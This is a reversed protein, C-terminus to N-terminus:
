ATRIRRHKIAEISHSLEVDVAVADEDVLSLTKHSVHQTTPKKDGGPQSRMLDAQVQERLSYMFYDAMRHHQTTLAQALDAIATRQTANMSPLARRIGDQTAELLQDFLLPARLMEDDVFQLLLKSAPSPWIPLIIATGDPKLGVFLGANRM